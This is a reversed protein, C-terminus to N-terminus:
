FNFVKSIINRFSNLNSTREDRIKNFLFIKEKFSNKNLSEEISNKIENNQCNNREVINGNKNNIVTCDIIQNFSSASFYIGHVSNNYIKCNSIINENNSEAIADIGTHSNNYFLCNEIINRSSYQLEIGDCNNEFICNSIINRSCDSYKSGLLAIGEDSCGSFRCNEIINESTWVAIGVPNDFINCNLIKVNSATIRIGTTYLGPGKNNISLNSIVTNSAAINIAYKNEDSIPNIITTGKNEGILTITKKITLIENYAGPRIYITTGEQANNIAEQISSYDARGNKDVILYHSANTSTINIASTGSSVFEFFLTLLMIAILMKFIKKM